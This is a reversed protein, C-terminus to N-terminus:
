NSIRYERLLTIQGSSFLVRFYSAIRIRVVRSRKNAEAVAGETSAVMELGAIEEKTGQVIVGGADFGEVIETFAKERERERRYHKESRGDQQSVAAADSRGIKVFGTRNPWTQRISRHALQLLAHLLKDPELGDETVLRFHEKLQGAEVFFQSIILQGDFPKEREEDM